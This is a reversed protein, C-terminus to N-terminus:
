FPLNEACCLSTLERMEKFSTMEKMKSLWVTVTQIFKGSLIQRSAVVVDTGAERQWDVVFAFSSLCNTQPRETAPIHRRRSGVLSDSFFIIRQFVVISRTNLVVKRSM